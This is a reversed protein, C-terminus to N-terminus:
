TRPASRVRVAAFPRSSASRRNRRRLPAAQRIRGRPGGLIDRISPVVVACRARPFRRQPRIRAREGSSRSLRLTCTECAQRGHDFATFGGADHLLWALTLAFVQVCGGPVRDLPNPRLTSRRRRAGRARRIPERPPAPLREARTNGYSYPVILHIFFVSCISSCRRRSAFDAEPAFVSV